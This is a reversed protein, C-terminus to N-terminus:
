PTPTEQSEAGPTNPLTVTADTFTWNLAHADYVLGKAELQAGDAYTISVPGTSTLTQTGLDVVTQHLTGRTGTSDEVEAVGEVLVQQTTTDLIADKAIAQMTVGNRRVLTLNAASLHIQDPATTAAEAAEAWVRYTSGDSLLGNYQPADVLIRDPSVSINGVSFRGALSSLYIQGIMAVLVVVGLIPVLLRLVGVFRNRLQLRGYTARREATDDYPRAVM